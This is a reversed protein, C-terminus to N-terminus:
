WGRAIVGVLLSFVGVVLIALTVVALLLAGAVNLMFYFDSWEGLWMQPTTALISQGWTMLHTVLTWAGAVFGLGVVIRVLRLYWPPKLRYVTPASIPRQARELNPPGNLRLAPLDRGWSYSKRTEPGPDGLSSEMRGDAGPQDPLRATTPDPNTMADHDGARAVHM